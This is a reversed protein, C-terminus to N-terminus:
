TELTWKGMCNLTAPAVYGVVFRTMTQVFDNTPDLACELPNGAIVTCDDDASRRIDAVADAAGPGAVRDAGVPDADTARIFAAALRIEEASVTPTPAAHAPAAAVLPLISVATLVAVVAAVIRRDILACLVSSMAEGNRAFRTEVRLM